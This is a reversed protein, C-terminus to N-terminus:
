INRFMEIEHAAAVTEPHTEGLVNRSLEYSQKFKKLSQDYEGLNKFTEGMEYYVTATLSDERPLIDLVMQFSELAEDYLELSMYTTGICRHLDAIKHSREEDTSFILSSKPITSTSTSTTSLLEYAELSKQFMDLAEKYHEQRFLETGIDHYIQRKLISEENRPLLTSPSSLLNLAHRNLELSEHFLGAKTYEQVMKCLVGAQLLLILASSSQTSTGSNSTSRSPSTTTRCEKTVNSRTSGTVSVSVQVLADLVEQFMSISKDHSALTAFHIAQLYFKRIELYPQEADDDDDDDHQSMFDKWLQHLVQDVEDQGRESSIGLSECHRSNNNSKSNM